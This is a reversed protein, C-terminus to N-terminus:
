KWNYEVQRGAKKLREAVEAGSLWLDEHKVFVKHIEAATLLQKYKPLMEADRPSPNTINDFEIKVFKQLKLPLKDPDGVYHKKGYDDIIYFARSVHFLVTTRPSEFKITACELMIDAGASAAKGDVEAIVKAPSNRIADRIKNAAQVDGGYTNIHIVLEDNGDANGIQDVLFKTEQDDEIMMPTYVHRVEKMGNDFIAAGLIIVITIIFVPVTIRNIDM